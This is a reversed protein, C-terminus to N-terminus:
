DFTEVDGAQAHCESLGAPSPQPQSDDDPRETRREVRDAPTRQQAAHPM